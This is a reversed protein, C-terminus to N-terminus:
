GLRGAGRPGHGEEERRRAFKEWTELPEEESGRPRQKLVENSSCDERVVTFLSQGEINKETARSKRRLVIYKNFACVFICNM